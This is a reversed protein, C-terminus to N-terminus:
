RFDDLHDTVWDGFSRPAAGTIERVTSDTRGPHGVTSRWLDLLSSIM